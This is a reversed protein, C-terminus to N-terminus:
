RPAQLQPFNSYRRSHQRVPRVLELPKHQAIFCTSRHYRHDHGRAITIELAPLPTPTARDQQARMERRRRAPRGSQLRHASPRVRPKGAHLEDDAARRESDAAAMGARGDIIYIAHPAPMMSELFAADAAGRPPPRQRCEKRGRRGHRTHCASHCIHHDDRAQLTAAAFISSFRGASDPWRSIRSFTTFLRRATSSTIFHIDSISRPKQYYAPMPLACPPASLFPSFLRPLLSFAHRRSIRRPLM